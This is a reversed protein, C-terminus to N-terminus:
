GDWAASVRYPNPYVGVRGNAGPPTGPFVRTATAIRSSEFSMLGADPDGEDFATVMFLYQWGPLLTGADFRYWYTTTDGPFTVPEDLLVADLGNNIGTRNGPRDYQAILTARDLINGALDDGPNSRYIRYGEFDRQGTVPDVSFEASRDWYVLVRSSAPNGGAGEEAVFEVRVQPADPPEPILYRDLRGNGNVDEGEDLRGNFNTDEGAFTRRAWAVNSRLISRSEETDVAKGGQGQSAEPKLAALLAYTVQLTDAPAARPLRGVPTVSIWNGDGFQGATRLRERFVEVAAEYAENSPYNAPNPYPISMRRYKEQDTTPRSLEETGGSFQWWRPNVRPASYGDQRHEDALDPHFFRRQGRQPDRWDAGLFVFAGYTNITEEMGGANFVYNTHLSDIYGAGNKNFYASGTETTTNVNRVVLDGYLGVFVSDWASASTNIINFELVAFYETFPFNWAYTNQEVVMGLRGEQDPMLINTGPLVRFTDAFATLYDQHSVALSTYSASTLLSSRESIPVLPAFEFGPAGPSYGGTTTQSGTRVTVTGDSRIAGVWLGGEFLHEVGSDLPYEFSPPGTPNNRVNARGVFGSNTITIGVNGVDIVAEEFSAQAHV